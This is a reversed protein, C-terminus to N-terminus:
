QAGSFTLVIEVRRNQKRGQATDNSAIYCCSGQADILFVEDPATLKARLYERVANARAFAVTENAIESGTNDTRSAIKVRYAKSALPVLEDLAAKDDPSLAAGGFPFNLVLAPPPIEAAAMPFRTPKLESAAPIELATLAVPRNSTVEAAAQHAQSTALTKATVAPCAPEICGAFVADLGFGLQVIKRPAARERTGAKQAPENQDPAVVCASLVAACISARCVLLLPRSIM